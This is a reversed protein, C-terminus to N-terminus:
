GLLRGNGLPTFWRHGDRVRCCRQWRAFAHRCSIKFAMLKHWQRRHNIAVFLRIIISITTGIWRIFQRFTNCQEIIFKQQLLFYGGAALGLGGLILLITKKEM